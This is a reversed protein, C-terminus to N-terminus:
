RRAPGLVRVVEKPPPATTGHIELWAKQGGFADRPKSSSDILTVLAEFAERGLMRSDQCVATMRPFVSHRTDVDDFGVISLQDPVKVGMVHAENILGVAIHPDAAYIATPPSPLSMLRRLLQAGDVRHPPIRFVLEDDALDAREMARVYAAFRDLHDGDDRLCAAFAIRAHGLSILHEVAEVSAVASDAYISPYPSEGFHDGLTVLPFGEAGMEAVRARDAATCRVVAGCVGKRAFFQRYTEYEMKDRTIDLVVMDLPSERMAEIMGEFCASDYPGGPTFPGAYVLAVLDTVRRGGGTVYHCREAASFVQRRLAPKVSKHGNLVRSVTAISVGAEKAVQRISGM